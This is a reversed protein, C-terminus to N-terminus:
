FKINNNLLEVSRPLVFRDNYFQHDVIDISYHGLITIDLIFIIFILFIKQNFFLHVFYIINEM